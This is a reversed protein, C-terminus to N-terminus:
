PLATFIATDFYIEWDMRGIVSQFPLADMRLPDMSRNQTRFKHTLSIQTFTLTHIHSCSSHSFTCSADVVASSYLVLDFCLVAEITHDAALWSLLLLGIYTHICTHINVRLSFILM